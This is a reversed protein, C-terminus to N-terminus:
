ADTAPETRKANNITRQIDARMTGLNVRFVKKATRLLADQDSMPWDRVLGISQGYHGMIHEM